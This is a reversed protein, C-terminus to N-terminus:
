FAYRTFYFGRIRLFPVGDKRFVRYTRIAAAGTRNGAPWRFDAPTARSWRGKCMSLPFLFFISLPPPLLPRSLSLVAGCHARIADRPLVRTRRVTSEASDFSRRPGAAM